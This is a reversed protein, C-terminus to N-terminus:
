DATRPQLVLYLDGPDKGTALPVRTILLPGGTGLWEGHLPVKETAVEASYDPEHAAATLAAKADKKGVDRDKKKRGFLGGFSTGGGTNVFGDEDEEVKEYTIGPVTKALNFGRVAITEWRALLAVSGSWSGEWSLGLMTPNTATAPLLVRVNAHLDLGFIQNTLVGGADHQAFAPRTEAVLFEARAAPACAVERRAHCLIELPGAARLLQALEPLTRCVVLKERAVANRDAPRHRLLTATVAVNAPAVTTTAESPIDNTLVLVQGSSPILWATGLLLAVVASRNM